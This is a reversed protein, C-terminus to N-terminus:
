PCIWVGDRIIGGANCPKLGAKFVFTVLRVIDSATIGGSCNVDGRAECVAPSAGGKFTFNVLSIIDSSTVQQDNNADGTAYGPVVTITGSIWAFPLNAATPDLIEMPVGPPVVIADVLITGTDTPVFNLRWLEGSGTWTSFNLDILGLLTTDPDTASAGLIPNWAQIEFASQAKPSVQIYAGGGSGSIPGILNGNSFTYLLPFAIGAIEQDTPAHISFVISGPVGAILTDNGSGTGVSLTIEPQGESDCASNCGDGSTTNGDDCEEGPELIGNGCQAQEADCAQSCGDGSVLNGDDCDEGYELVGNGCIGPESQCVPDCGDGAVHNGDDCDEGPEVIGNGCVFPEQGCQPDCGDGAVLNGDDCEEGAEVVGNGCVSWQAVFSRERWDGSGQMDSVRMRLYYRQGEVLASGEYAAEEFAGNVAGTAWSEAVTWDRDIGVEIEYGSQTSGMSGYFDWGVTAFASTVVDVGSAPEVTIGAAVPLGSLDLPLAGLDNRSGDVDNFSSAPDGANVCPSEARLSFDFGSGSYYLPDASQDGPGPGASLYDGGPNDWVDNYGLTIGSNSGVDTRLEFGALENGSIINNRVDVNHSSMVTLGLTNDHFTNNWVDVDSAWVYVAGRCISPLLTTNRFIVNREIVGGEGQIMGLAPGNPATNEYFVNGVVRAVGHGSGRRVFLGGGTIDTRNRRFVNREIVPAGYEFFVGGGDRHVYGEEIVCDALTPSVGFGEVCRVRHDGQLTFGSIVTGPGSGEPLRIVATSAGHPVRIVTRDAGAESRLVLTKGNFNLSELYVGPGVDITDGSLAINLAAQITPQDAPVQISNSIRVTFSVQRWDGWDGAGRVRLRLAYTHFDELPLGAYTASTAGSLVEGTAWLEAEDWHPDTGVQMEYAVQSGAASDHYTWDIQPSLSVVHGGANVPSVVIGVAVPYGVSSAPLAGLDNRSGGPDNYSPDPDGADICPSTFDLNFDGAGAGVFLPDGSFEHAAPSASIYNWGGNDWLDNYDHTVEVNPGVDTQLELGGLPHGSIINNRADVHNSSLITLGLSNGAITNNVVAVDDAWVFVAGRRVSPLVTVNDYVVNREIVGHEGQMMAIGPGNPAENGYCTNGTVHVTGYGYGLRVCMAGGTIDTRNYRFVNNRVTSAGFEFFAGGGDRYVYGHEIVCEEVTPSSGTSSICRVRDDGHLTFGRILTGSSSGPSLSIVPASSSAPARLTTAAAGSASMLAVTKGAFNLSELYMGPAVLITDGGSAATLAAQITAYDGPVNLIASQSTSALSLVLLVTLSKM